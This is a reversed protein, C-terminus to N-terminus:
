LVKFFRTVPLPRFGIGAYVRRAAAHGPDGGTEVMAVKCGSARLWRLATETLSTGVGARQWDPDVALMWIEGLEADGHRRAAAFGIVQGDLEAVWANTADDALAARVEDAQSRRWDGRLRLFLESGMTEELAAFVPAWARLSLEVLQACDSTRYSRITAAM